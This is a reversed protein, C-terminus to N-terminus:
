LLEDDQSSVILLTCGEDTSQVGHLSATDARQYDGAHLHEGAVRLDGELVFCEELGAHRHPVYASGAAMRVLMTVYRREADVGLPKVDIGPVSTAEWQGEDRRLTSLGPAGSRAATDMWRRWTQVSDDHTQAPRVADLVRARLSAPPAEGEGITRLDLRATTLRADRIETACEPCGDAIHERLRTVDDEGLAGLVALSASGSWACPTATPDGSSM